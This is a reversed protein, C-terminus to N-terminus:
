EGYSAVVAVKGTLGALEIVEKDANFEPWDQGNLTVSQIPKAQPHRLRLMVTQPPKRSPIEVTATIKGRDVHSVIEYAM